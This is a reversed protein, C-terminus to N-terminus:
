DGSYFGQTLSNMKSAIIGNKMMVMMEQNKLFLLQSLGDCVINKFGNM